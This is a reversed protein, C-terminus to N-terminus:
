ADARMSIVSGRREDLAITGPVRGPRTVVRREVIESRVGTRQLKGPSVTVTSADEAEGEYVPLYDMGMSDKKPVPSTDPLGMPNRYYLIKKGGSQEATAGSPEAEKPKEDFSVDEGVLVPLYDRGDETKEPAAAYSPRGDPHRYYAVPGTSRSAKAPDGRLAAIPGSLWSPLPWKADGARYGIVLAGALLLIVLLVNAIARAPRRKPRAEDFPEFRHFPTMQDM